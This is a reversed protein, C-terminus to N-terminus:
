PRPGAGHRLLAAGSHVGARLSGSLSGSVKSRGGARRRAPVAVERVALGARAAKVVMEVPWGSARSRMDLSLLRERSICRMPGLDTIPLKWRRRVIAAVARNAALQHAALARPEPEHRAGLVLDAEGALVPVALLDLASPDESGDGDLYLLLSAPPAARAGAHCASGYGRRTEHIVRAGANRAEDATRDRSGNDVVLVEDAAGLAGRVVAAITSEEDLAPVIACRRM